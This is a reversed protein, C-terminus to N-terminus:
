GLKNRTKDSLSTVYKISVGCCTTCFKRDGFYEASYLHNNHTHFINMFICSVAAIHLLQSSFRQVYFTNLAWWYSVHIESVACVFTADQGLEVTINKMDDVFRPKMGAGVVFVLKHFRYSREKNWGIAALGDTGYHLQYLQLCKLKSFVSVPNSSLM